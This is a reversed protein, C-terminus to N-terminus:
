VAVDHSGELGKGELCERLANRTRFLLVGLTNASIGLIKCIEDTELQEVERMTFALRRRNPLAALCEALMTMAQASAASLDPLRIPRSWRGTTDFRTEHVEDISEVQHASQLARWRESMKRYLIGFLWARVSSRGDFEEARRVFVLVTEQVVDEADQAPVGAARAARLLPPIEERLLTDLVDPDRRRIAALHSASPAPSPM